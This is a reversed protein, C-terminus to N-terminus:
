DGGGLSWAANETNQSPGLNLQTELRLAFNVAAQGTAVGRARLKEVQRATFSPGQEIAFVTLGALTSLAAKTIILAEPFFTFDHNHKQM